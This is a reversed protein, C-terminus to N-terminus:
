ASVQRREADTWGALTVARAETTSMGAAVLACEQALKRTSLVRRMTGLNARMRGFEGALAAQGYSAAISAELGSDYDVFAPSFRDLTAADLQNRGCYVPSAGSGWTNATAVIVADDSITAQKGDARTYTRSELLANLAVATGAPLADIEDICVLRGSELSDHMAGAKYDAAGTAINPICRGFFLSEDAQEHCAVVTCTKSLLRAIQRAITTKGSGAPGVLLPVIRPVIPNAKRAQINAAILKAWKIALPNDTAETPLLEVTGVVHVIRTPTSAAVCDAVIRRVADADLAQPAAQAEAQMAAVAAAMLQAASGITASAPRTTPLLPLTEGKDAEVAAVADALAAEGHAAILLAHLADRSHQREIPGSMGLKRAAAYLTRSPVPVAPTSM